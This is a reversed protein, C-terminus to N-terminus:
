EWLEKARNWLVNNGRIKKSYWWEAGWLYIEDFGTQRAYELNENFINLNMTRAQRDADIEYIMKHDWPEAQLEILIIKDVGTIWKVQNARKLYFVPKLPYKIYGWRDSHVLRYLSTGLTDAYFAPQTWSSLEGSATLIVPRSKKFDLGRVLSIERLLFDKSLAECEGFSKLFPENEVQWAKITNNDRYRKIIERLIALIKEQQEERNLSQAWDPIHCEPWRPGRVGMVLIVEVGRKGAEEIQWDLDDFYYNDKNPEIKPWYAILRIKRVGLDDLMAIYAEKWDLRMQEAFLQSFTIGYSIDEAPKSKGTLMYWAYILGFILSFLILALIVRRIKITKLSKILDSVM